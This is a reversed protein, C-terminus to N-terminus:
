SNKAAAAATQELTQSPASKAVGVRDNNMGAAGDIEEAVGKLVGPQFRFRGALAEENNPLRGRFSEDLQQRKGDKDQLYVTAAAVKAVNLMKRNIEGGFPGQTTFRRELDEITKDDLQRFHFTLVQRGDPTEILAEVDFELPVTDGLLFSLVTAEKRDGDPDDKDPIHGDAALLLERPADDNAGLRRRAEDETEGEAGPEREEDESGLPHEIQDHARDADTRRPPPLQTAAGAASPAPSGGLTARPTETKETTESM